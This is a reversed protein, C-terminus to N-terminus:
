AVERAADATMAAADPLPAPIFGGGAARFQRGV